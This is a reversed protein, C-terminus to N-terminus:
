GMRISSGKLDEVNLIAEVALWQVTCGLGNNTNARLPYIVWGVDVPGVPNLGSLIGVDGNSQKYLAETFNVAGAPAGAKSMQAIFSAACFQTARARQVCAKDSRDSIFSLPLQWFTPRPLKAPSKVWFLAPVSSQGAAAAVVCIFAIFAFLGKM